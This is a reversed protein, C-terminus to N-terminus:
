VGEADGWPEPVADLHPEEVASGDPVFVGPVGVKVGVPERVTDIHGEPVTTGDNM